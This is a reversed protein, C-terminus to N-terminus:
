SQCSPRNVKAIHDICGDGNFELGILQVHVAYETCDYATSYKDIAIAAALQM